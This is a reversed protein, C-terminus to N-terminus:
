EEDLYHWATLVGRGEIEIKKEKIDKRMREDEARAKINIESMRKM